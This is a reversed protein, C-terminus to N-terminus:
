TREVTVHQTRGDPLPFTFHGEADHHAILEMAAMTASQPGDPTLTVHGIVCTVDFGEVEAMAQQREEWQDEATTLYNAKTAM